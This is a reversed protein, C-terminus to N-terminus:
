MGPWFPMNSRGSRAKGTNFHRLDYTFSLMVFQRLANTQQDEIYTETVTRQINRNQNLVDNLALAIEGRENKFLKKGIALNWLWYNQNFDGSLGSFLQHSVDTRLVFGELVIWNLRARSNLTLYDNNANTQLSNRVQNWTPRTSVTFDIRDSINSSLTVGAGFSHTAALNKAENLLGPNQSFNYAGDLNANMKLGKIPRGYSVFSRVSYAGDLNVPRSIQAGRQVAYEGFIPFDSGALYTSNAIYDSTLNGGILAFFTSGKATNSGQYRMFFNHQVSQRLNPNGLTLQLPNANNIVDQLQEVAPLQTNTRYNVRVNHSKDVDFRLSASPLLNFFDQGFNAATPFSRDNNLTAWQANLRVNFNFTRDKSYNYGAGAQQTIYDNSFVNSLPTNLLSYADEPEFFDYTYRDSAEQQYSARYNLLLQSKDTIPETYELNASANWNNVDLSAQQDLSDLRLIPGLFFANQSQLLNSGNKPSYGTNLDTSFTRGKRQFKHRWLLSNSFNVGTLESRYRNDTESLVGANRRTQGLTASNGDNIQATLRPRILLSNFSDLEINIRANFRHNTNDGRTLSTEDYVQAAEPDATFQRFIASEANNLTKNFFYGANVDVKKGWKDSYNIGLAHTTAIGGQPRVLFDMSGGGGGGGGRGGGGGGMMRGGMMMMANRFNGGPVGMVGLIDDVSFNQVNINNSMGIFSIRRNGDFVNINGGLQYKDQYGYGSYVKGFQGNNMGKKTVINITKTTNGDQFGTFQAQDSQQDFIQVKDIVEAPLNRLAATPDNGFFPKGDVLVQTVNEGQAKIAGNETTVGPLKSVLDESTADRLVKVANANFETTDGKQQAIPVTSEVSIEQLLVSSAQLTVAGLDADRDKITVERAANEYGLLSIQLKYGGKGVDSIAFRGDDASVATKFTEGWPHQLGVSAGALPANNADTIQGRITFTQALLQQAGLLLCFLLARQM